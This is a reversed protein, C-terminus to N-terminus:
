AAELCGLQLRKWAGPVLLFLWAGPARYAVGRFPNSRKGNDKKADWGLDRERPHANPLYRVFGFPDVAHLFREGAPKLRAGPPLYVELGMLPWLREGLRRCFAAVEEGEFQCVYGSVMLFSFLPINMTYEIAGHLLVGALLVYKRAPRFFVLTGLSFETAVTGWTTLYVFPLDNFVHPVPFRFFEALRAPYWTATGDRWHVGGLKAWVTSFYILALNFQVLRQGYVPAEVPGEEEGRRLRFLRDLSCARGCPSVALYCSFVRMVTDGGHLISSDRHNLSVLCIALAFASFRTFLGIATLISLVATLAFFAVGVTPSTQGGILSLRPVDFGLGTAVSGGLLRQNLWAPMFGREGYWDGWDGTLMMLNLFVIGGLLIRYVGLSTPSGFGFWWRDLQRLIPEEAEVPAPSTKAKM